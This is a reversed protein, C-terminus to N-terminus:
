KRPELLLEGVSRGNKGFGGVSLHVQRGRVWIETVVGQLIKGQYASITNRFLMTSKQVLFKAADNFIAVDGDLGVQLLSKRDELGVRLATQQSSHRAVNLLTDNVALGRRMAETWLIPLGLGVSSVGGWAELFDGAETPDTSNSKTGPVNPPLLKLGPTCPSYDSVVTKIVSDGQDLM